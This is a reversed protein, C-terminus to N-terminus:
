AAGPRYMTPGTGAPDVRVWCFADFMTPVSRIWSEPVDNAAGTTEPVAASRPSIVADRATIVGRVGFGFLPRSCNTEPVVNSPVAHAFAAFISPLAQFVIDHASWDHLSM